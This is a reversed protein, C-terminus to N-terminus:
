LTLGKQLHLVFPITHLCFTLWHISVYGVGDYWSPWRRYNTVLGLSIRLPYQM